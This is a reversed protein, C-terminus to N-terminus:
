TCLYSRTRWNPVSLTGYLVSKCRWRDAASEDRWGTPGFDSTPGGNSPNWANNGTTVTVSRRKVGDRTDEKCSACRTLGMGPGVQKTIVRVRMSQQLQWVALLCHSSYLLCVSVAFKWYPVTGCRALLRNNKITSETDTQGDTQRDCVNSRRNKTERHFWAM